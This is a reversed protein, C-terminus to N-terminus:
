LAKAAPYPSGRELMQRILWSLSEEMAMNLGNSNRGSDFLRRMTDFVELRAGAERLQAADRQMREDCRKLLNEAEIRYTSLTKAIADKGGDGEARAADLAHAITMAFETDMVKDGHQPRCWLGAAIMMAWESARNADPDAKPAQGINNTM